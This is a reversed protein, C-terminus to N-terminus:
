SKRTKTWRHLVSDLLEARGAEVYVLCIKGVGSIEVRSHFLGHRLQNLNAVTESRSLVQM